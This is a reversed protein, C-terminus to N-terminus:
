QEAGGPTSRRSRPERVGYFMLGERYCFDYYETANAPLIGYTRGDNEQRFLFSHYYTVSALAKDLSPIHMYRHSDLHAIFTHRYRLLAERYTNWEGATCGLEDLLGRKFGRRNDRDIIVQSWHHQEKTEGFLKCWEVVAIDIFNCNITGHLLGKFRPRQTRKWGARYFAINRLCAACLIATRRLRDQRPPAFNKRAM